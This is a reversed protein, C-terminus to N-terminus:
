ENVKWFTKSAGKKKNTKKRMSIVEKMKELKKLNDFVTTRPINLAEVIQKRQIWVSKTKSQEVLYMLIRLMNNNYIISWSTKRKNM